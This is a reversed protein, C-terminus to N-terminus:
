FATRESPHHGKECQEIYNKTLLNSLYISPEIDHEGDCLLLLEFEKEPIGVANEEGKIYVARDVYKWKRLAINDKIRYFM